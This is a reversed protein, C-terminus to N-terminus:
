YRRQSWGGPASRTVHLEEGVVREALDERYPLLAVLEAGLRDTAVVVHPLLRQRYALLPLVHPLPGVRALERDPAPPLHEAYLVDEPTAFVVLTNGVAHAGEVYRDVGTLAAEEAGQHALERRFTKWATRVRQAADEVSGTTDLYVSVIQGAPLRFVHTLVADAPPLPRDPQVSM